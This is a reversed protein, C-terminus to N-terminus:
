KTRHFLYSILVRLSVALFIGSLFQAPTVGIGFNGLSWRLGIFVLSAGISVGAGIIVAALVVSIIEIMPSYEKTNDSM